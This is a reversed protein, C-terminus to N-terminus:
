KVYKEFWGLLHELKAVRHSPYAGRIGHPEKPIRVLVTDIKRAKLAFYFEESQGMPTRWDEEGTLVMTPTTVKGAFFVPSHELYPKVDDWPAAKMWRMMTLGIDSSGTQTIWNTVPYQSVAAAFRGTQTVIWATLLGGGSGGTVVLKKADIFGRAVVADVGLMLDKYDDGPYSGHICNGFEEGYGTSGRPNTYLVVFGRGAMVHMQHTFEVGYMAHPGGHIDLALPYKRSADFDPPYILWGEINKGDFSKWKVHEVKGVARGDLLGKNVETLKVQGGPNAVAFTVIDKPADPASLGVAVHDNKSLSFGDISAYGTGYRLNGRTVAVAPGDLPIKYFHSRGETEVLAVLNRSTSDWAPAIVNRDLEKALQRLGSGDANMVYLNTNHSSNGKDAFGSFAIYRGDPSVSPNLETGNIKTLQVPAGGDLPFRWIDEPYLTHDADDRRAAHLVVSKGDPMWAPTGGHDYDGTTIQRPTGGTAPIVFLHSFGLPRQGIGPVGDARWKLRTVVVAPEAWKAGAPAKPMKVKWAPEDAVRALFAIQEGDPSWSMATPAAELDTLRTEAGTDMWRVFIQAKGARTSVYALRGGDPSWVPLTDKQKGSTLPRHDKGNAAVISLNSHYVDEFRDPTELVYVIRGGDPSIKPNSPVRWDFVTETTLPPKAGFAMAAALVLVQIRM